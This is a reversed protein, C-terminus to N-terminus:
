QASKSNGTFFGRHQASNYQTAQGLEQPTTQTLICGINHPCTHRSAMIAPQLPASHPWQLTYIYPECPLNKANSNCKLLYVGSCNIHPMTGSEQRTHFARWDCTKLLTLFWGKDGACMGTYVPSLWVSGCDTTYVDLTISYYEKSFCWTEGWSFKSMTNSHNM